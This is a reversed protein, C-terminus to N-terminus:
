ICNDVSPDTGCKIIIDSGRIILDKHLEAGTTGAICYDPWLM